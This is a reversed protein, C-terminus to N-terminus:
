VYGGSSLPVGPKFLSSLSQLSSELLRFLSFPVPGASTSAALHLPDLVLDVRQVFFLEYNRKLNRKLRDSVIIYLCESSLM